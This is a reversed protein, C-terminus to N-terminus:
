LAVVITKFSPSRALMSVLTSKGIGSGAFIGIRQGACIPTLLDIAKVGTPRPHKVREMSMPPLPDNDLRYAQNGEVVPGAGDIPLLPLKARSGMARALDILRNGRDPSSGVLRTASELASVDVKM